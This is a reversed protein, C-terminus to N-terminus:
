LPDGAEFMEFKIGSSGGNITQIGGPISLKAPKTSSKNTM